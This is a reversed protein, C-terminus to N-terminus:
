ARESNSTRKSKASFCPSLISTFVSGGSGYNGRYRSANPSTRREYSRKSEDRYKEELIAGHVAILCNRLLLLIRSLIEVTLKRSLIGAKLSDKFPTPRTADRQTNLASDLALM